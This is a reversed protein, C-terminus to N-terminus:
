LGFISRLDSTWASTGSRSAEWFYAKTIGPWTATINTMNDHCQQLTLYNGGSADVMMGVAIQSQPIGADILQQIRGKAAALSVPADYFQQGIYTLLGRDSLVKAVPLYTDINSGNPAMTFAFGAGFRTRLGQAFAVIQTQDIGGTEIDIDVGDLGGVDAAIRAIDAVRAATSSLNVPYGEGGLSLIVKDGATRDAALAALLDAKGTPGYDMLTITGSSDLSAGFALFHVNVGSPEGSLLGPSNSWMMNYVGVAQAPFGSTSPPTTTSPRSTTSPPRNTTSPPATTSAPATTTVTDPPLTVSAGIRANALLWERALDHGSLVVAGTPIPTCGGQTILRDNISTVKSSVVVVEAGYINTPTCTQSSTRTYLILQNTGREVNVGDVVHSQAGVTVSPVAPTEAAVAPSILSTLNGFGFSIAIAVTAFIRALVRPHTVRARRKSAGSKTQHRM